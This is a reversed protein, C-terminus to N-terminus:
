PVAVGTAEGVALAGTFDGEGVGVRVFCTPSPAGCGDTVGCFLADAVVVRNDCVWAALEVGTNTKVAVGDDV